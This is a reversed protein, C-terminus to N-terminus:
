VRRGRVESRQKKYSKIRWYWLSMTNNDPKLYWPLSKRMMISQRLLKDRKVRCEPCHTRGPQMMTGCECRRASLSKM